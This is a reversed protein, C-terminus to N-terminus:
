RSVVLVGKMGNLYHQGDQQFCGFEWEGPRAPVQVRFTLSGGPDVVAMFDMGMRMAQGSMDMGPPMLSMPDAGVLRATDAMVMTVREGALLEVTAGDLLQQEFGDGQVSGFAGVERLPVRGFMIEHPKGPRSSSRNLVTVTVTEGARWTLRRPAFSYDDMVITYEGTRGAPASNAGWAALVTLAAAAVLAAVVLDRVTLPAGTRNEPRAPPPSAAPQMFPVSARGFDAFM